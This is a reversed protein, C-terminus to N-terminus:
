CGLLRLVTLVALMVLFPRFVQCEARRLAPTPARSHPWPIV